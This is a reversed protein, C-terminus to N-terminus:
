AQYDDRGVPHRTLTGDSRPVEVARGDLQFRVRDIRPFQTMTYVIQGLAVTRDHGGQPDEFQGALDITAVGGAIGVGLVEVDPPIFSGLGARTEAATPGALLSRLAEVPTPARPRDRPVETLRDGDVLYVVFSGTTAPPLSSAPANPDRLLEFPVADRDIPTPDSQASVGGCATALMALVALGLTTPRPTV